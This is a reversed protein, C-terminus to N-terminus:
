NNNALKSAEREANEKMQQRLEPNDDAQKILRKLDEIVNREKGPIITKGGAHPFAADAQMILVDIADRPYGLEDSAIRMAERMNM